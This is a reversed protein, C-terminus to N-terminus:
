LKYLKHAREIILATKKVDYFKNYSKNVMQNFIGESDLIFSINEYFFDNTFELCVENKYDDFRLIYKNPKLYEDMSAWFDNM